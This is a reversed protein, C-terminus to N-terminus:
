SAEALLTEELKQSDYTVDWTIEEISERVFVMLSVNAFPKNHWAGVKRQSLYWSPFEVGLDVGPWLGWPSPSRQGCLRAHIQMPYPDFLAMFCVHHRQKRRFYSWFQFSQSELGQLSVVLLPLGCTKQLRQTHHTWLTPFSFGRWKLWKVLSDDWRCAGTILLFVSIGNWRGQCCRFTLLELSTWSEFWTQTQM